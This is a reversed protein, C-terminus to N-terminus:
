LRTSKRDEFIELCGTDIFITAIGIGDRVAFLKVRRIANDAMARIGGSLHSWSQDALVNDIRLRQGVGAHEGDDVAPGAPRHLREGAAAHLLILHQFDDGIDPREVFSWSSSTASRANAHLEPEM